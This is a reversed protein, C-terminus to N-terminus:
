LTDLTTKSSPIMFLVNERLFLYRMQRGSKCHDNVDRMGQMGTNSTGVDRDCMDGLGM